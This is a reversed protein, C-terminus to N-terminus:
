PTGFIVAVDNEEDMDPLREQIRMGSPRESKNPLRARSRRGGGLRWAAESM